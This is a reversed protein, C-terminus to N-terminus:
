ESLHEHPDAPAGARVAPVYVPMARGADPHTTTLFAPRVDMGALDADGFLGFSTVPGGTDQWPALVEGADPVTAAFFCEIKHEGTPDLYESVALVDGVQVSLGTEEYVERALCQPLTEGPEMRGGPAYWYGDGDTVLLLRGDHRIVGRAAVTTRPTQQHSPQDTVAHSATM